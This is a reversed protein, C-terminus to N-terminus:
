FGDKWRKFQKYIRKWFDSNAGDNLESRSEIQCLWYVVQKASM